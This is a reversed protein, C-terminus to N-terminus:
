NFILGINLMKITSHYYTLAILGWFCEHDSFGLGPTHNLNSIMDKENTFILELITPIENLRYRAPLTVHQYLYLDQISDLFMQTNICNSTLHSWNINSYISTEVALLM